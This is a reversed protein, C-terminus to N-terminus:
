VFQGPGFSGSIPKNGVSAMDKELRRVTLSVNEEVERVAVRPRSMVAYRLADLLHDDKKIPAERGEGEGRKASEWRYKRFQDITVPCNSAVVLRGESLLGKMRQLGAVVSNQGAITVVGHDAYEMQDSRGTHSSRNRSAPDIVYWRPTRGWRVSRALIEECVERITRNKLAVEDFVTWVGEPSVSCFVAAAMHRFGPDIGVIVMDEVPVDRLMPVVHSEVGFEPYILGAFHVFNGSKRAAREEPSLGLLARRKTAEDLHPNDDMDVEVVLAEPLLGKQVPEYIREFMWLMGMLPTMTFLEDGSYDILRFQCEVRHAEPPEEDYHVRHM